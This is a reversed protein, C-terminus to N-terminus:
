VSHHYESERYPEGNEIFSIPIDLFVLSDVWEIKIIHNVSVLVKKGGLWNSTDVVLSRIHWNKDDMIFDSLHGIQGDRAHIHYDKIRETSRLHIDDDSPNNKEEAEIAMKQDLMPFPSSVDMSSGAYFGNGWYRGWSYYEYLELEQRRSVPKHTDIEPSKKIQDKTLNVPFVGNVWSKKMIATPSILVERDDLWNGTDVVIYRIEWTEDDFYFEEVQGIKGDSAEM